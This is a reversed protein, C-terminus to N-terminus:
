IGVEPDTYIEENQSQMDQICQTIYERIESADVMGVREAEEECLIRANADWDDQAMAEGSLLVGTVFLAVVLSQVFKM